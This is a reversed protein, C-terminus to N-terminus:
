SVSVYIQFSLTETLSDLRSIGSLDADGGDCDDDILTRGGIVFM